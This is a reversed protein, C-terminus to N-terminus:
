CCVRQDESFNERSNDTGSHTVGSVEKRISVPLINNWDGGIRQLHGRCGRIFISRTLYTRYTINSCSDRFDEKTKTGKM